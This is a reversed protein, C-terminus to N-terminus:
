LCLLTKGLQSIYCFLPSAHFIFLFTIDQSRWLKNIEVLCVINVSINATQIQRTIGLVNFQNINLAFKKPLLGSAQVLPPAQQIKTRM